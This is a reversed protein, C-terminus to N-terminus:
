ARAQQHPEAPEAREDGAAVIRLALVGAVDLLRCGGVASGRGGVASARLLLDRRALHAAPRHRELAAAEAGEEATGAIRFALVDALRSGLGRRRLRRADGTRLAALALDHLLARVAALGEPGAVAVRVALERQPLLRHRALAGVAAG